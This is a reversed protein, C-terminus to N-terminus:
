PLEGPSAVLAKNGMRTEIVALRVAIKTFEKTSEAINQGHRTNIDTNQDKLMKKIDALSEKLEQKENPTMGQRRELRRLWGLVFLFGGGIAELVKDQPIDIGAM